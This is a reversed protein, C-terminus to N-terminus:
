TNDEFLLASIPTQSMVIVPVKVVWGAAVFGVLDKVNVTVMTLSQVVGVTISPGVAFVIVLM